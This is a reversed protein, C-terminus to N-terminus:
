EPRVGAARAVETWRVTESAVHAAAQEPTGGGPTIGREQMWARLAADSLAEAAMAHLDALIDPPTGAPAHLGHWAIATFGPATAGLPPVQPLLPHPAADATGLARLAGSQLHPLATAITTISLDVEGALLARMIEGGGRYPVHLLEVGARRAFDAMFLHSANGVGGSAYTVREPERRARALVAPLDIGAAPHGIMVVPVEAAIIIHAFGRVPDYPLHAFVAPAAAIAGLESVLLTTGDPAARAVSAAGITGGAGVRNEVIVTRGSGDQIRRALARAIADIAGGPAFPVVLRISPAPQAWARGRKDHRAAALLMRRRM